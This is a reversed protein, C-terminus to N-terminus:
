KFNTDREEKFNGKLGRGYFAWGGIRRSASVQTLKEAHLPGGQALEAAHLLPVGGVAGCELTREGPAPPEREERGM